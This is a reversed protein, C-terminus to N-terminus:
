VIFHQEGIPAPLGGGGLFTGLEHHGLAFVGAMAFDDISAPALPTAFAGLISQTGVGVHVDDPVRLEGAFGLPTADSGTVDRGEHFLDALPVHANGGSVIDFVDHLTVDAPATATPLSVLGFDLTVSSLSGSSYLDAIMGHQGVVHNANGSDPAAVVPSGAGELLSAISVRAMEGEAGISTSPGTPISFAPAGKFGGVAM